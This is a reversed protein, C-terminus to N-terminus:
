NASDSPDAPQIPFAFVRTVTAERPGPDTPPEAAWQSARHAWEELDLGLWRPGVQARVSQFLAAARSAHTVVGGPQRERVKVGAAALKILARLLDATPGRRGEAHWVSEWVEHAEWYYGANFLAIGWLYPASRRWDGTGIAEARLPPRNAWHGQPSSLPHPWPGGPVYSYPPFGEDVSM